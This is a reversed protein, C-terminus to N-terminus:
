STSWSDYAQARREHREAERQNGGRLYIAVLQEHLMALRRAVARISVGACRARDRVHRLLV